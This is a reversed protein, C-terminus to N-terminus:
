PASGIFKGKEWTGEYIKGNTSKYTGFGERVGKNWQGAYSDGDVYFMIGYGTRLSKKWEGEYCNGSAYTMKGFGDMEGCKWEGDYDNGNPNRATGFGNSKYDMWDGEYMVGNSFYITGHGDSPSNRFEGDYKDGNVLVLVGFGNIKGRNFCGLYVDGNPFLCQGRGHKLNDQTQGLYIENRPSDSPYRCETAESVTMEVDINPATIREIDTPQATLEHDMEIMTEDGLTRHWNNEEESSEHTNEVFLQTQPQVKEFNSSDSRLADVLLETSDNSLLSEALLLSSIRLKKDKTDNDDHNIDFNEGICRKLKSGKKRLCIKKKLSKFKSRNIKVSPVRPFCSSLQRSSIGLPEYTVELPLSSDKKYPPM